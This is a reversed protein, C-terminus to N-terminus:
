RQTKRKPSVIKGAGGLSQLQRERLEGPLCANEIANPAEYGRMTFGPKFKRAKEIEKAIRKGDWTIVGVYSPSNVVVKGETTVSINIGAQAQFLANAEPSTFKVIAGTENHFSYTFSRAQLAAIITFHDEDYIDRLCTTNQSQKLLYDVLEGTQITCHSLGGMQVTASSINRANLEAKANGSGFLKLLFSVVANFELKFERTFTVTDAAPDITTSLPPDPLCTHANRVIYLHGDEFAFITTPESKERPLPLASYKAKELAKELDSAM